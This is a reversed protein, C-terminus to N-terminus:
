IGVVRMLYAWSHASTPLQTALLRKTRCHISCALSRSRRPNARSCLATAASAAAEVAAAELSGALARRSPSPSAAWAGMSAMSRASYKSFCAVVRAATAAAM